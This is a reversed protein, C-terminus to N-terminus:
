DILNAEGKNLYKPYIARFYREYDSNNAPIITHELLDIYENGVVDSKVIWDKPLNFSVRNM